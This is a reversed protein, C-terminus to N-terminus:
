PAHRGRAAVRLIREMFVNDVPVVCRHIGLPGARLDGCVMDDRHWGTSLDVDAHSEPAIEPLRTEFVEVCHQHRAATLCILEVSFQLPAQLTLVLPSHLTLGKRSHHPTLLEEVVIDRLPQITVGCMRRRGSFALVAPIVVPSVHVISIHDRHRILPFVGPERRPIQGKVGDRKREDIGFERLLLEHQDSPLPVHM